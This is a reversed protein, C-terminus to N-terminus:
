QFKESLMGLYPSSRFATLCSVSFDAPRFGVANEEEM